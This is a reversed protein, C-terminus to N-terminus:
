IQKQMSFSSITEKNKWDGLDSENGVTEVMWDDTFVAFGPSLVAFALFVAM